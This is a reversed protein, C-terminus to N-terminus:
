LRNRMQVLTRVRAHFDHRGQPPQLADHVQAPTMGLRAALAADRDPGDLAHTAPDRRRLRALFAECMAGHLVDLHGRRYLLEGSAQVHELLSRRGPAPSPQWPGFRQGHRWLGAVLLLLLPLWVPWARRLLQLLPPVGSRLHVLHVTGRGYNPALVQRALAQHPVDRLGDGAMFDMDALLDIGGRGHRWRAYALGDGPEGWQLGPRRGPAATFRRGGCFEQHPPQGEMWLPECRPPRTPGPLALARLLPVAAPDVAREPMRLVLHGGRSVWALLARAQGAPVQAPDGHLVVTDGPSGIFASPDLSDHAEVRLGDAQLALRLAFLPDAAAEGGPPLPVREEVREFTHLFWAGVLALVLPLGVLLVGALMGRERANMRAVGLV